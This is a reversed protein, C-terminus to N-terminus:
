LRGLQVMLSNILANDLSELTSQKEGESGLLNNEDLELDRKSVLTKNDVLRVGSLDILSYNLQRALRVISQGSGVSDVLNREPLPKISVQLRMVENDDGQHLTVGAQQLQQILNQQQDITLNDAVLQLNSIHDPLSAFGRLQFGCAQLCSFLGLLILWRYNM